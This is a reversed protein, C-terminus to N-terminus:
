GRWKRFGSAVVISIHPWSLAVKHALAYGDLQGPMQVDTFLLVVHPHHSKLLEFAADGYHADLVSFGADELVEITELLIIFNDEVVLACPANFVIPNM